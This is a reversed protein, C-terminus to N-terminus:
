RFKYNIISYADSMRENQLVKFIQSGNSIVRSTVRVELSTSAMFDANILPPKILSGVSEAMKCFRVEIRNSLKRQSVPRSRTPGWQSEQLL